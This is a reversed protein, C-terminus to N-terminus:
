IEIHKKTTKPNEKKTLEKVLRHLNESHDCFQLVLVDVCNTIEAKKYSSVPLGKLADLVNAISDKVKDHSQCTELLHKM